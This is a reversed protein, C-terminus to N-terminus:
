SVNLIRALSEAIDRARLPKRLIDSVGASRALAAVGSDVYGSMIVIPIDARMRRIERALGTGTLEPMM